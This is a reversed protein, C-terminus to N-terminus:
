SASQQKKLIRDAESIVGHSTLKGFEVYVDNGTQVTEDIILVTNTQYWMSGQHFNLSSFMTVYHRKGNDLYCLQLDKAHNGGSQNFIKVGINEGEILNDFQSYDVGPLRLYLKNTLRPNESFATDIVNLLTKAYEFNTLYKVNNWVFTIAGGGANIPLLKSIYQCFPNYTTDWTGVSGGFPTFYLRFVNDSDSGLYVIQEQEYIEDARDSNILRIQDTNLKNVADRFENIEEQKCYRSMLVTYNYVVRRLEEHDSVIVGTQDNDNGNTGDGAIGDLNTSGFWIAAGHEVGRNDTYNSVTCTKNHMMDSAAKDGYSTWNAKRFTMFDGVTKGDINSDQTLYSQFYEDFHLDDKWSKDQWHYTASGDIQGIVTVNIGIKAAAVLLYAIRVYGDNDFERDYLSKMRSYDAKSEDLCVAAVVSLHFSTFSITVNEDPHSQKYMICQYLMLAVGVNPNNFAEGQNRFFLDVSVSKGNINDYVTRSRSMFNNRAPPTENYTPPTRDCSILVTLALLAITLCLAFIKVYRRM